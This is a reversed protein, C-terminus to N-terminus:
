LSMWQTRRQEYVRQDENVFARSKRYTDDMPALGWVFHLHEVISELCPKFVGRFKATGIFERDTWNHDYVEPLVPASQDITGSMSRIYKGRVLYHTAHVGSTVEQNHLDNTGVVMTKGTMEKLAAEYWGPYFKLDDAGAFFLDSDMAEYASNIAGAYTSPRDNIIRIANTKAAEERSLGDREELILVINAGPTTEEIHKVYNVLRDGRGFTPIYIDLM